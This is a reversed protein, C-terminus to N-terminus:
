APTIPPRLLDPPAGPTPARDTFRFGAFAPTRASSTAGDFTSIAPACCGGCNVCGFCQLCCADPLPLDLAAFLPGANMGEPVTQPGTQSAVSVSAVGTCEFATDQLAGASSFTWLLASLLLFTRLVCFRRLRSFLVGARDSAMPVNHGGASQLQWDSIPTHRVTVRGSRSQALLPSRLQAGWARWSFTSRDFM